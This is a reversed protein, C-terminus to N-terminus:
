RPRAALIAALLEEPVGAEVAPREDCFSQRSLEVTTKYAALYHRCDACLTLHHEFARGVESSLEGSLYEMIFDSVERCTVPFRRLQNADDRLDISSAARSRQIGQGQFRKTPGSRCKTAVGLIEHHALQGM